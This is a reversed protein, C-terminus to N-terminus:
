LDVPEADIGPISPSLPSLCTHECGRVARIRDLGLLAKAIHLERGGQQDYEGQHKCGDGLVRYSVPIQNGVAQQQLDGVAAHGEIVPEAPPDGADPLWEKSHKDLDM